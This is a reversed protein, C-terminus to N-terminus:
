RLCLVLKDVASLYKENFINFIVELIIFKMLIFKKIKLYHTLTIIGFELSLM